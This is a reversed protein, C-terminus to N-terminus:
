PKQLPGTVSSLRATVLAQKFQCGMALIKGRSLKPHLAVLEDILLYRGIVQLVDNRLVLRALGVMLVAFFGFTAAVWGRGYGRQLDSVQYVCQVNFVVPM